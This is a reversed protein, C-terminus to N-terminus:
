RRIGHWLNGSWALAPLAVAILSDPTYPSVLPHDYSFFIGTHDWDLAAHATRMRVFSGAYVGSAGGSQSGGDFDVRVDAHSSAGFVHPGRADLGLVTQRMSVGTSGAGDIAISPTVAVDVQRTNVFGNLLILGTLKVPYKSESEVKAQDHTAIQSEQMAQRERIEDVARALQTADSTSATDAPTGTMQQRLTALEGRLEELQRQSEQLQAQARTMAETLQEVRKELSVQDPNQGSLPIAMACMLGVLSLFM